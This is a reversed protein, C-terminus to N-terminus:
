FAFFLRRAGAKDASRCAMARTVNLNKEPQFKPEEESQTPHSIMTKYIRHTNLTKFIINTRMWNETNQCFWKTVGIKFGRTM